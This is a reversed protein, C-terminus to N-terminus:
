DRNAQALNSEDAPVLQGIHCVRIPLNRKRIGYSLQIICAPCSTVLLGAGTREVNDIKRDLVQMSLDFHGLAYSGAGGCCWDAEPMERYEVGPLSRLFERPEGSIGQGRAAHCPDHYTAIIPEGRDASGAVVPPLVEVLDRVRSAIQEAKAHLPDDPEFLEAYKKLFAACSSCDTVIADLRGADVRNLNAEALRRTARRDGYTNAPVGCCCNDLVHVERGLRCLIDLTANATEPYMLDIGCGVFYGIRLEEGSGRRVGPPVSERFARFPFREVIEEARSLDRVMHGFGRLMRLARVARSLGTKKGFAATKAALRLRGPNPLLVDFLVRHLASRGVNDLYEARAEALLDSTAVGPFCNSTCAGCRLCNFLPEELDRTWDVRNEILARLLALRGRAVGTEHGTARFIPCAAQCFGCKNCQAIEDYHDRVSM